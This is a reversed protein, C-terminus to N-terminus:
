CELFYGYKAACKLFVVSWFIETFFIMHLCSFDLCFYIKDSVDVKNQYSSKIYVKFIFDKHNKFLLVGWIREQIHLKIKEFRSFELCFEVFFGVSQM